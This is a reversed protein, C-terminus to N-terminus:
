ERSAAGDFAEIAEDLMVYIEVLAARDLNALLTGCVNLRAITFREPANAYIVDCAIGGVKPPTFTLKTKVPM